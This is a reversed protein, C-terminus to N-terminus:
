QVEIHNKLLYSYEEKKLAFIEWCIVYITGMYYKMNSCM